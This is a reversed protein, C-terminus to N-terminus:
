NIELLERQCDQQAWTYKRCVINTSCECRQMKETKDGKNCCKHKSTSVYKKQISLLKTAQDCIGKVIGSDTNSAGRTKKIWHRNMRQSAFSREAERTAINGRIFISLSRSPQSRSTERPSLFTALLLYWSWIRAKIPFTSSM